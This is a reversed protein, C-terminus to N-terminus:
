KTLKGSGIGSIFVPLSFLQNLNRQNNYFGLKIKQFMWESHSEIKM